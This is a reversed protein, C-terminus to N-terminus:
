FNEFNPDEFDPPAPETEAPYDDFNTTDIVNKVTPLIPPTLTRTRLGEWYFGDFWRFTPFINM